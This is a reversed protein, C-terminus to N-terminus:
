LLGAEEREIEKMRVRKQERKPEIIAPVGRSVPGIRICGIMDLPVGGFTENARRDDIEVVCSEAGRHIPIRIM